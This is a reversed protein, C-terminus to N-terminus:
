IKDLGKFIDGLTVNPAETREKEQKIAALVTERIQEENYNYPFYLAAADGHGGGRIKKGDKLLNIIKGALGDRSRLSLAWDGGARKTSVAALMPPNPDRDLILGCFDSVDGFELLGDGVFSLDNGTRLISTKAEEFRKEQRDVFNQAANQEGPTLAASPDSILRMLVGWPGCITVLGQWLRSEPIEGLWLDRDNTLKILPEISVLLKREQEDLAHKILWKWYVMAACCGTDVVAWERNGYRDFTSKHHDFVFPIGGSPFTRDIEDVTYDRQCFLDLVLFKQGSSLSEMIANDVEGYGVLSVKVPLGSGRNAYWALAASVVGDLDTHSIIHFINESQM